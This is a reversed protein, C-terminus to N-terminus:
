PFFSDDLKMLCKSGWISMVLSSGRWMNWNFHCSYLVFFSYPSFCWTVYLLLGIM